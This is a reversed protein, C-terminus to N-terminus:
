TPSIKKKRQPTPCILEGDPVRPWYSCVNVTLAKLTIMESVPLILECQILERWKFYNQILLNHKYIKKKKVFNDRSCKKVEPFLNFEVDYKLLNSYTQQITM